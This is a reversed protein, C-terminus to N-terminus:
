KGNTKIEGKTNNYAKIYVIAFEKFSQYKNMKFEFIFKDDIDLGEFISDILFKERNMVDKRKVEGKLTYWNEAVEIHVSLKQGIITDTNVELCLDVIKDRLEKAEKKM